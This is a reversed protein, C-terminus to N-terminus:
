YKIHLLTKELFESECVPCILKSGEIFLETEVACLNCYDFPISVVCESHERDAWEDYIWVTKIAHNSATLACICCEYPDDILATVKNCDPCEIAEIALFKQIRIDCLSSYTKDGDSKDMNSPTFNSM